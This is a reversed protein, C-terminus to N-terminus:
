RVGNMLSCKLGLGDHFDNVYKDHKEEGNCGRIGFVPFRKPNSGATTLTHGVTPNTVM